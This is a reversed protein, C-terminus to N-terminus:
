PARGDQNAGRIRTVPRSSSWRSQHRLFVVSETGDQWRVVYPPSGNEGQVEIIEGHWEEDSLRHGMATLEDGVEAQM